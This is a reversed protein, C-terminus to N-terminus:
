SGYFVYSAALLLLNQWRHTLVLYFAYVILFFAVFQFSNFLM